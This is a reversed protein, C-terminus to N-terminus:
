RDFGVTEILRLAQGRLKAIAILDLNDFAVDGWSAVLASPEAGAKLPYEGLSEAYIQQAKATSLYEMLRVANARNPAARTMAIGSLNVHTGGNEFKPFVIQVSEGAARQDPDALMEAMYYTNGLAIDCAGAFIAKIQARDNGQPKRALNAKIGQLWVTTAETGHHLLFASTLALNYPHTGARTCIRGRWKPHALDRYTTIEKPSVRTKSAYIARARATLGFWHNDPDRFQAPINKNLIPSRVAQTLDAAVIAHLRAIDSTLILDAPSHDGEARLRELVGKNLFTITVRLGSDREFQQLLPDILSPQRYSYINIDQALIPTALCLLIIWPIFFRLMPLPSETPKKAPSKHM